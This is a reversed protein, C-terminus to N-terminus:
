KIEKMELAKYLEIDQKWHCGSSKHREVAEVLKKFHSEANKLKDMLGEVDTGQMESCSQYFKELRKVREKEKELELEVGLQDDYKDAMEKLQCAVCNGYSDDWDLVRHGCPFKKKEEELSAALSAIERSAAWERENKPIRSDLIQGILDKHPTAQKGKIEKNSM